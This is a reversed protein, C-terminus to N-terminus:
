RAHRNRGEQGERRSADSSSGHQAASPASDGARTVVRAASCRRRALVITAESGRIRKMALDSFCTHKTLELIQDCSRLM